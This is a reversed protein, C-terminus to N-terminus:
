CQATWLSKPVGRWQYRPSRNLLKVNFHVIIIVNAINAVKLKFLRQNQILWKGAAEYLKSYDKITSTYALSMLESSLLEVGAGQISHILPGYCISRSGLSNVIVSACKEASTTYISKINRSMPTSVIFPRATLFDVKSSNEYALCQSFHDMFKKTASYHACGAYNAM